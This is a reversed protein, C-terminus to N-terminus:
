GTKITDEKVTKGKLEGKLPAAIKGRDQNIHLDAFAFTVIEFSQELKPFTKFPLFVCDKVGKKRKRCTKPICVGNHTNASLSPSKIRKPM